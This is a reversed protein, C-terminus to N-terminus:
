FEASFPYHPHQAHNSMGCVRYNSNYSELLAIEEDTLQFNFVDFNSIVRSPTVSKPITILGNQLQFRILVQGANKGYKTAIAGIKEDQLLSPQSNWSSGPSGLPCYSTVQINKSKCYAILQNQTIRPNCEFQHVAPSITAVALIREIQLHNFNSFGLSRVLGLTVLNEMARWTDVYDEKGEADGMPWHILYLDLYTLKLDSLTQRCATEVASPAHKSNWLKSTVFIDSRKLDSKSMAATIGQGVEGENGYIAAADIHRYGNLLAVEVATAVQGPASQWTGLGLQPM